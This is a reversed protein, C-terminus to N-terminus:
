KAWLKATSGAFSSSTAATASWSPRMTAATSCPATAPTWNWGSRLARAPARSRSFASAHDLLAHDGAEVDGAPPDDLADVEDVQALHALRDLERRAVRLEAGVLEHEEVDGGRQLPAPRNELQDLAGGGFQRDRERDAAADGAELIGPREQPGPGVLDGDVAGGEVVRRDEGPEGVLEAGLGDDARDVRLCSLDEGM